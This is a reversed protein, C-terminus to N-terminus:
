PLGSVRWLRPPPVTPARSLRFATTAQVQTITGARIPAAMPRPPREPDDEDHRDDAAGAGPADSRVRIGTGRPGTAPGPSAVGAARSASSHGSTLPREFQTM